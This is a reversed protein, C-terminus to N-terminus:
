RSHHVNVIQPQQGATTNRPDNEIVDIASGVSFERKAFITACKLSDRKSGTLSNRDLFKIQM